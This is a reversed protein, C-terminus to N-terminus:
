DVIGDKRVTVITFISFYSSNFCAPAIDTEITAGRLKGSNRQLNSRVNGIGSSNPAASYDYARFTIFSNTSELTSIPYQLHLKKKM